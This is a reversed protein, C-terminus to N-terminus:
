LYEPNAREEMTLAADIEISILSPSADNDVGGDESGNAIDEDNDGNNNSDNDNDIDVDQQRTSARLPM